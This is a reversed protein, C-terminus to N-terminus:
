LFLGNSAFLFIFSSLRLALNHQHFAQLIMMKVFSWQNGYQGCKLCMQLQAWARERVEKADCEHLLCSFSGDKLLSLTIENDVSMYM